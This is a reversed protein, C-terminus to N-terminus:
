TESAHLLRIIRACNSSLESMLKAVKSTAEPENAGTHIQRSQKSLVANTIARQRHNIERPRDPSLYNKLGMFASTDHSNMEAYETMTMTSTINQLLHGMKIKFSGMEQKTFWLYSKHEISLNEIFKIKINDAFSVRPPGASQLNSCDHPFDVILKMTRKGTWYNNHKGALGAM